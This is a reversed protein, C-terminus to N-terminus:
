GQRVEIRGESTTVATSSSRVCESAAFTAVVARAAWATVFSLGHDHTMELADFLDARVELVQGDRGALCTHGRGNHVVPALLKGLDERGAALQEGTAIAAARSFRLVEGPLQEAAEPLFAPRERRDRQASIRCSDCGDAIVIANFLKKSTLNLREASATIHQNGQRGAAAARIHDSSRLSAEVQADSDPCQGPWGGVWKSRQRVRRDSDFRRSHGCDLLDMETQHM